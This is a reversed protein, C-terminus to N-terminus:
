TEILSRNVMEPSPLVGAGEFGFADCRCAAGIFSDPIEYGIALRM